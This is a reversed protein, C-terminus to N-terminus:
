SVSLEPYVSNKPSVGNAIFKSGQSQHWCKEIYNIFAEFSEKKLSAFNKM